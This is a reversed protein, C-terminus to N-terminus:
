SAAEREELDLGHSVVLRVARLLDLMAGHIAGLDGAKVAALDDAASSVLADVQRRAHREAAASPRLCIVRAPDRPVM